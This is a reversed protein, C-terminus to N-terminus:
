VPHATSINLSQIILFHMGYLKGSIESDSSDVVIIENPIITQFFISTICAIVDDKRNKTPIIVSIKMKKDCNTLDPVSTDLSEAGNKHIPSANALNMKRDPEKDDAPLKSILDGLFIGM